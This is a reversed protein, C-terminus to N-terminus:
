NNKIGETIFSRIERISMGTLGMRDATRGCEWYDTNHLISSLMIISDIIPTPVGCLKGLSAIPVLSMPVDETIYRTMVTKPAMIGDYGRNNRMAEYLTRGAADYAMYLWERATMAQFGLAEAVNVRERDMKELIMAVSPTIGETYYEFDGNTSEIRGANLVTVAPHFISGINNLSTKM